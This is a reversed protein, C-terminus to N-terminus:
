EETEYYLRTKFLTQPQQPRQPRKRSGRPRWPAVGPRESQKQLEMKTKTQPNTLDMNRITSVFTFDNFKDNFMM